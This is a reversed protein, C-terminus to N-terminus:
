KTQDKTPSAELSSPAPEDEIKEEKVVFSARPSIMQEQGEEYFVGGLSEPKAPQDLIIPKEDTLPEYELNAPTPTVSPASDSPKTSYEPEMVLNPAVGDSSPVAQTAPTVSEVDAHAFNISGAMVTLAALTILKQSYNM